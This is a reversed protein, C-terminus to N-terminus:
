FGLVILSGGLSTLQLSSNWVNWVCSLRLALHFVACKIVSHNHNLYNPWQQKDLSTSDRSDTAISGEHEYGLAICLFHWKVQCTKEWFTSRWVLNDSDCHKASHFPFMVIYMYPTVVTRVFTSTDTRLNSAYVHRLWTTRKASGRIWFLYKMRQGPPLLSVHLPASTVALKPEWYCKTATTRWPGLHCLHQRYVQLNAIKSWCFSANWSRWSHILTHRHGGPVRPLGMYIQVHQYYNNNIPFCNM